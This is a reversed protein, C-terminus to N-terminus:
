GASFYLCYLLFYFLLLFYIITIGNIRCVPFPSVSDEKRINCETWRVDCGPLNGQIETVAAKLNDAKRSAIMVNCGVFNFIVVGFVCSIEVVEM